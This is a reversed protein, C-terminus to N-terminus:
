RAYEVARTERILTVKVEGPYSLEREIEKAIDRCLKNIERDPVREANVIVRVERGAQIAYAKDVGSFTNAIGELRTLRQIYKELTERRAGPRGASVADAAAVLATYISSPKVEGHHAAAANVVELPEGYRKCIDAGVSAHGGEMEHDTAKGIDHFLGCRKALRLDLNLEGAIMGSLHAVELSHQLVNQGFSTRYKLRGLMNVLRPQVSRVGVELVTQKGVERIVQEVERRTDAVVEEIRAPHIRGDLILKEMSRRGVERRVSDFGSLLVLGPTDDVIVDVGTAKEFARINRGERGIIRGKMDDNPIDISSVVSEATHDSACRQIATSLIIKAQQEATEKTQEVTRNILEASEHELEESLRELLMKKAQERGIGSIRHLLGKEKEVLEDLDHQRRSLERNKGSLKAQMEELYREKKSLIDVKRDLNDERKSLRRELQRLQQRQEEAEKELQERRQFLEERATLKAEKETQEAASRAEELIRKAKREASLKLRSSILVRIFYGAVSFLAAVAVLHLITLESLM